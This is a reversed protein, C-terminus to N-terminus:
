AGQNVNGEEHESQFWSVTIYKKENSQFIGYRITKITYGLRLLEEYQKKSVHNIPVETSTKGKEAAFKICGFIIEMKLEHSDAITDVTLKHAQEANM